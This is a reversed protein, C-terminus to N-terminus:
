TNMLKLIIKAIRTRKGEQVCKLIIKDTDVLFKATIKIPITNIM